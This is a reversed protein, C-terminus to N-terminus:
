ANRERDRAVCCRLALPADSPASVDISLTSRAVASCATKSRTASANGAATVRRRRRRSHVTASPTGRSAPPSWRRRCRGLDLAVDDGPAEEVQPVVSSRLARGRATRACGACRSPAACRRPAPRRAPPTPSARRARTRDALPPTATTRAGPHLARRRGRREVVDDGEGDTALEVARGRDRQRRDPPPLRGSPELLLRTVTRPRAVRPGATSTPPRPCRRRARPQRPRCTPARPAAPARRPDTAPGRRAGRRPRRAVVGCRDFPFSPTANACRATACSSTPADRFASASARSCAMSRTWNSWGM